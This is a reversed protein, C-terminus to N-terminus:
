IPYFRIRSYGEKHIFILPFVRPQRLTLWSASRWALDNEIKRLLLHGFDDYFSDYTLQIFKDILM